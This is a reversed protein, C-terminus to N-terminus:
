LKVDGTAIMGIISQYHLRDGIELHLNLNYKGSNLKQIKARGMLRAFLTLPSTRIKQLRLNHFQESFNARM